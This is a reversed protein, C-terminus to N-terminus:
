APPESRLRHHMARIAAIEGVHQLCGILIGKIWSYTDKWGTVRARASLINTGTAETSLQDVSLALVQRHLRAVVQRHYTLLEASTLRPVGLVEDMTYGTLVGLAGEGLGRPDYGTKQAWGDRFWLEGDSTKGEILRVSIVDLWRTFHWVTVGCSNGGPDAQWYLEEEGVGEIQLRVRDQLEDLLDVLTESTTRPVPMPVWAGQRANGGWAARDDLCWEVMAPWQGYGDDVSIHGAGPIIRHELGLADTYTSRYGEM